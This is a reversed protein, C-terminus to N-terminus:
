DPSKVFWTVYCFFTSLLSNLEVPSKMSQFNCVSILFESVKEAKVFLIKFNVHGDEFEIKSQWLGLPILNILQAKTVKTLVLKLVIKLISKIWNATTPIVDLSCNM